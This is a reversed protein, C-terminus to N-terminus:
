GKMASLRSCSCFFYEGSSSASSSRITSSMVSNRRCHNKGASLFVTSLQGAIQYSTVRESIPTYSLQSGPYYTRSVQKPKCSDGGDSLM